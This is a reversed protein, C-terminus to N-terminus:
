FLYNFKGPRLQGDVAAPTGEKVKEILAGIRGDDLLQGGAVKLGLISGPGASKRLIM